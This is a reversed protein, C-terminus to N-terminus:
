YFFIWYILASGLLFSCGCGVVSDPDYWREERQAGGGAVEPRSAALRIRARERRRQLHHAFIPHLFAVVLLAAFGILAALTQQDTM